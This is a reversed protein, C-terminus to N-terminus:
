DGEDLVDFKRFNYSTEKLADYIKDRGCNFLRAIESVGKGKTTLEKIKDREDATFTSRDSYANQLLADYRNDKDTGLYLHAPNICLKNTCTHLVDTHAAAKPINGVFVQFSVRHAYKHKGNLVIVGYGCDAVTGIWIWCTNILSVKEILRRKIVATTSPVPQASLLKGLYRHNSGFKRAIARLSYGKSYLDFVVELEAETFNHSKASM